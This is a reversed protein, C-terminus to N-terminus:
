PSQAVHIVPSFVQVPLNYQCTSSLPSFMNYARMGGSPIFLIGKTCKDDGSSVFMYTDSVHKILGTHLTLIYMTEIYIIHKIFELFYWGALAAGAAYVIMLAFFGLPASHFEGPSLSDERM